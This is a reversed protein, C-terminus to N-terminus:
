AQGIRKLRNTLLHNAASRRGPVRVDGRGVTRRCAGLAGAASLAHLHFHTYASSM